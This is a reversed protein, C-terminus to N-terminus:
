GRSQRSNVKDVVEQWDEDTTTFVIRFRKDPFARYYENRMYVLYEELESQTEKREGFFFNGYGNEVWYFGDETKGLHLRTQIEWEEGNAEMEGPLEVDVEYEHLSRALYNISFLGNPYWSEKPTLMLIHIFDQLKIHEYEKCVEMCHDLTSAYSVRGTEDVAYEATCLKGNEDEKIEILTAFHKYIRQEVDDWVIMYPADLKLLHTQEM